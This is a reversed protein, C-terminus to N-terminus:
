LLDHRRHLLKRPTPRLIPKASFSPSEDLSEDKLIRFVSCGRRRRTEEGGLEQRQDGGRVNGGRAVRVGSSRVAEKGKQLLACTCALLWAGVVDMADERSPQIERWQWSGGKERGENRWGRAGGAVGGEEDETASGEVVASLLV